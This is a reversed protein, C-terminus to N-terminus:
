EIFVMVVFLMQVFMVIFYCRFLWLLLIVDPRGYCSIIVDSPFTQVSQLQDGRGRAISDKNTM